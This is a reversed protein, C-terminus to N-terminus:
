RETPSMKDAQHDRALRQAVTELMAEVQESTVGPKLRAFVRINPGMLLRLPEAAIWFKAGGWPFQFHPPMVGIVIFHLGSLEITKGIIGADGGFQSKWWSHSLVIVTDRVPKDNHENVPVAEDNAFARGLLPPVNWIALFGPSVMWGIEAEIFADTKMELTMVNAWAFGAFLEQKASVAELVPSSLDLFFPKRNEERFQGQTYYREAIQVLREPTPGPVPNLLAENVVSYIATSAGIGLALTLVAVVTFGPNKLLQRFAFRLDNM